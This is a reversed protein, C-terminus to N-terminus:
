AGNASDMPPFFPDDPHLVRAVGLEVLHGTAEEEGGGLTGMFLQVTNAFALLFGGVGWGEACGSRFVLGRGSESVFGVVLGFVLEGVLGLACFLGM